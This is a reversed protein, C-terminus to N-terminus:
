SDDEQTSCSPSSTLETESAEPESSELKWKLEWLQGMMALWDEYGIVVLPPRRNDKCVAVPIRGRTDNAAQEYAARLNPKKGHKCEVHVNPIEVDAEEKGGGRSQWGRKADCGPMVERLDAAVKREFNHGKARSGGPRM